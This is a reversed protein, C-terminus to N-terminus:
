FPSLFSSRCHAACSRDNVAHGFVVRGGGGGGVPWPVCAPGATYPDSTPAVIGPPRLGSAPTEKEHTTPSQKAHASRLPWCSEEPGAQAICTTPMMPQSSRDLVTLWKVNARLDGGCGVLVWINGYYCVIGYGVALVVDACVPSFRILHYSEHTMLRRHSIVPSRSSVYTVNRKACACSVM